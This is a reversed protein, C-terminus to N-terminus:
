CRTTHGLVGTRGHPHDMARRTDGAITAEAEGPPLPTPGRGAIARERDAFATPGAADTIAGDVGGGPLLATNAANVVADVSPTTIDGQVLDIRVM